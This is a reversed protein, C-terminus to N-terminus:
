RVLLGKLAMEVLAEAFADDLAGMGLLLRIWITGYLLDMALGIDTNAAIEGRAIAREFIARHQGRIQTVVSTRFGEALEPDTQFAGVLGALIKGTPTGAYSAVVSRVHARLDAGLSGKDPPPGLATTLEVLFADLALTGKSTWWRYITAKSVEAREAVADMTISRLSHDKFLEITAKLIAAQAKDSRPRGARRSGAEPISSAAV